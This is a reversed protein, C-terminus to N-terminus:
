EKFDEIMKNLTKSKDLGLKESIRDIKKVNKLRISHTKSVPYNDYDEKAM